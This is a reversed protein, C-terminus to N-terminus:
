LEFREGSFASEWREGLKPQTLCGLDGISSSVRVAEDWSEGQSLSSRESNLGDSVVDVAKERGLEGL